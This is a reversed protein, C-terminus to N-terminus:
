PTREVDIVRAPVSHDESIIAAAIRHKGDAIYHRDDELRVLRIGDAVEDPDVHGDPEEQKLYFDLVDLRLNAGETLFSISAPDIHTTYGWDAHIAADEARRREREKAQEFGIESVPVLIGRAQLEEDSAKWSADYTEFDADRIMRMWGNPSWGDIKSFRSPVPDPAKAPFAPAPPRVWVTREVGNRDVRREPVLDERKRIGM